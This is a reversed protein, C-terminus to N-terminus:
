AEGKKGGGIKTRVLFIRTEHVKRWISKQKLYEGGQNAQSGKEPRPLPYTNSMIRCVAGGGGGKPDKKRGPEEGGRFFRGGEANPGRETLSYCRNGPFRVSEGWGLGEGEMGV